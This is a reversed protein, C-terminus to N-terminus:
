KSLFKKWVKKIENIFSNSKRALYATYLVQAMKLRGICKGNLGTVDRTLELQEPTIIDRPKGTFLNYRNIFDPYSMDVTKEGEKIKDPAEYQDRLGYTSFPIGMEVAYYAFSGPENGMAYKFNKLIDYFRQGFRKDWINGATYVPIGAELFIRHKGGKLIDEHGLCLCVPQYEEPLSKLKDIYDASNIYRPGSHSLYYVTGRAEATQEIKNQHRYLVMPSIIPYVREKPHDKFLELSRKSFYLNCYASHDLYVDPLEDIDAGPVSHEISVNCHLSEPFFGYKCISSYNSYVSSFWYTFKCEYQLIKEQNCLAELEDQTFGKYDFEAM